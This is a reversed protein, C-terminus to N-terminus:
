PTALAKERLQRKKKHQEISWLNYRQMFPMSDDGPYDKMKWPAADWIRATKDVSATVIRKGDPSYNASWVRQTHGHLYILSPNSKKM